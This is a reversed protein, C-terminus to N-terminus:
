LRRERMRFFKVLEPVYPAGTNIEIADVGLRRFLRRREDLQAAAARAYGRVTRRSWTDIVMREGTEADEFEVLGIPPLELERPDTLAVAVLDHRRNALTLHRPGVHAQAM